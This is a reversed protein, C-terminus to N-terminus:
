SRNAVETIGIWNTMDWSRGGAARNLFCHPLLLTWSLYITGTLVAGEWSNEELLVAVGQGLVFPQRRSDLLTAALLKGEECSKVSGCLKNRKEAARSIFFAAPFLSCSNNRPCSPDPLSSVQSTCSCYALNRWSVTPKSCTKQVYM